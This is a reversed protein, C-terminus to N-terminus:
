DELAKKLKQVEEAAKDGQDFWYEYLLPEIECEIIMELEDKDYGNKMKVPDLNCFFSHGIQYDKGLTKDEKIVEENLRDVAEILKNFRESEFKQQYGKFSKTKFGPVVNYFVFRRRLAYDIIALSRDATNMLGIIYLNAPVHFDEHSYSLKVNYEAGRKDGEILMLLEGFIKSINGRNIEDIIIFYKKDTNERAKQCLKHFIGKELAFGEEQPKFGIVFDEYTYNQHFQTMRVRDAAKEELFAYALKKAMFTKGVGPPGQLILNKKKKLLNKLKLLTQRDLFVESLFDDDTYNECLAPFKDLGESDNLELLAAKLSERLEWVYGNETDEGIFPVWWASEYYDEKEEVNPTIKYKKKLKEGFAYVSRNYDGPIKGNKKFVTKASVPERYDLFSLFLESIVDTFVDQDNLIIRWEEKTVQDATKRRKTNIVNEIKNILDTKETIKTLTKVIPMSFDFEPVREWNVKRKHPYKNEVSDYFYDSEIIGKGVIMMKGKKAYVVDGKKLETVFQWNALSDNVFQKDEESFENLKKAIEEKSKYQKLNGLEKWGLGMIGKQYLEEWMTANEGPSYLWYDPPEKLQKIKEGHIYSGLVVAPNDKFSTETKTYYDNLDDLLKLYDSASYKNGDIKRDLLLEILDTTNSDLSIFEYPSIVYLIISISTMKGKFMSLVQDMKEIFLDSKPDKLTTEFFAWVDNIKEKNVEYKYFLNIKLNGSPIYYDNKPKIYKIGLRKAYARHLIERTEPKLRMNFANMITFPDIDERFVEQNDNTQFTQFKTTRGAEEHAALVLKILEKRSYKFDLVREAVARYFPIWEFAEKVPIKLMKFEEEHIM